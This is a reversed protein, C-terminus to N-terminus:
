FSEYVRIVEGAKEEEPAGTDLWHIVIGDKEMKRFYTMQRKAFRHIETELKKKMETLTLKGTLYLTVYKYELGYYTLQEASLGSSLLGSVEEILGKDIRDHLRTSIKHRRLEVPPDLGICVYEYNESEDTSSREVDPNNKLFSAIEIARILRKRTSTDAVESYASVEQDFLKLLEESELEDLTARLAEDKPIGTFAYGKLIADIYMGSGGCVVPIHQRSCIQQYAVDFDKQFLSVNYKEGAEVVDILHFRVQRGDVVFEDLDKGTGITMGRYVQRSDASIVEGGIRSAVRAALRTKGSATPGLIVLLPMKKLVHIDRIGVVSPKFTTYPLHFLHTCFIKM